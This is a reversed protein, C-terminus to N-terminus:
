SFVSLDDILADVTRDLVEDSEYVGEAIAARAKAIRDSRVEPLDRMKHLYRAFDSLEVRDGSASAGASAKDAHRLSGNVSAPSIRSVPGVGGPPGVGGTGGAGGALPGTPNVAFDSM